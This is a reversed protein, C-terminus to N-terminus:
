NKDYYIYFISTSLKLDTYMMKNYYKSQLRQFNKMM